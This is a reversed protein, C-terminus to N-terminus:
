GIFSPLSFYITFLHYWSFLCVSMWVSYTKALSTSASFISEESDWIMSEYLSEPKRARFEIKQQSQVSGHQLEQVSQSKVKPMASVLVSYVLVPCWYFPAWEVNNHSVSFTICDIRLWDLNWLHLSMINDGMWINIIAM